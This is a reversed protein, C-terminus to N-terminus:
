GMVKGLGGVRINIQNHADAARPQECPTHNIARRARLLQLRHLMGAQAAAAAAPYIFQM